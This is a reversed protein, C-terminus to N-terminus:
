ASKESENADAHLNARYEELCFACDSDWWDIHEKAHKSEQRPWWWWANLIDTLAVRLGGFLLGFSWVALLGLWFITVPWHLVAEYLGLWVLWGLAVTLALGLISGIRGPRSRVPM